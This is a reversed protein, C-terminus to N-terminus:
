KVHKLIINSSFNCGYFPMKLDGLITLDFFCKHLVNYQVSEIVCICCRFLMIDEKQLLRYHSTNSHTCIWTWIHKWCGYANRVWPTIIGALYPLSCSKNANGEGGLKQRIEDKWLPLGEIQENCLGGLERRLKAASSRVRLTESM